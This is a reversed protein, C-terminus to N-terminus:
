LHWGRSSPQHCSCCTKSVSLALYTLLLKPVSGSLLKYCASMFHRLVACYAGSYMSQLSIDSLALVCIWQRLGVQHTPVCV